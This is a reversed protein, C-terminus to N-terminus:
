ARIPTVKGAGNRRNNACLEGVVILSIKQVVDDLQVASPDKLSLQMAQNLAGIMKRISSVSYGEQMMMPIFFPLQPAYLSNRISKIMYKKWSIADKWNMTKHQWSYQEGKIEYKSEKTAIDTMRDYFYLNVDYFTTPHAEMFTTTNLVSERTEGPFGVILSPFTKIGAANLGDISRAYNEVKASKNMNNLIQQDGSELGLFVSLAGSEAMLDIAERDLNSARIFGSWNFRFDETIMMRLITKFRALPVNFSDDTFFLLEIGLSKLDRMEKKIFDLPKFEMASCFKPYNCFSCHFSCGRTTQLYGTHCSMEGAFQKWDIEQDALHATERIQRTRIFSGDPDKIALNPVKALSQATANVLAEVTLALTELGKEEIIYIDAGLKQFYLNQHELEPNLQCYRYIKPGGLIIPIEPDLQRIFDVIEKVPENDWLEYFMTTLVVAMPKRAVM